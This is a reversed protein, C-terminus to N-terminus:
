PGVKLRGQGDGAAGVLHGRVARSELAELLRETKDPRVAILLGGSTMADSLVLRVHEPVGDEFDTWQSFYKLNSRTGGPVIGSRAFEYAERVVPVRGASIHIDVGSGMAMELAHGVLGFGTIDTCADAGVECMALAAQRNLTAMIETACAILDDWAVGLKIATTVIGMGIPKTLVLDDGPRCTSNRVIKDPHVTGTVSLGYKPEVDDITHGGILRAGSEAIKDAGGRLIDALISLDLTGVPFAALNMVTLPTGGMAYVDSFANAAAIRGFDYPDDVIPTFFDVTQVLALEPGIRYVGADDSTGFGVLLDPDNMDCPLHRLVQALDGPGM